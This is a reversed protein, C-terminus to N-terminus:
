RRTEVVADIVNIQLDLVRKAAREGALEASLREIAAETKTRVTRAQEVRARLDASSLDKFEMYFQLEIRATPSTKKTKKTM